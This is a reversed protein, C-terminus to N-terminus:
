IYENTYEEEIDYIKIENNKNINTKSKIKLSM